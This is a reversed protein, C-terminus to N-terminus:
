RRSSGTNNLCRRLWDCSKKLSCDVFPLVDRMMIYQELVIQDLKEKPAAPAKKKPPEGPKEATADKSKEIVMADNPNTPANTAAPQEANIESM